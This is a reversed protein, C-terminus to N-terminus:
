SSSLVYQYISYFHCFSGLLVFLHFIGHSFPIKKSLYFFVGTIYSVGGALLWLLGFFDLSYYLPKIAVIIVVGMLVYAWASIARYKKKYWFIKYGVGVFALGWIVGFISWGWGAPLTILSFPTYTGAILVYIASHDFKNLYYKLRIKSVGHYITSATYLTILSAGFVSVSVISIATGYTTARILMLILALISLVIGLGHTSSNVVENIRKDFFFKKNM